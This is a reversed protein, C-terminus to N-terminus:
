NGIKLLGSIRHTRSLIRGPSARSENVGRKLPTNRRGLAASVTKLPKERRREGSSIMDSWWGRCSRRSAASATICAPFGNSVTERREPDASVGSFRPTLSLPTRSYIRHDCLRAQLEGCFCADSSERGAGGPHAGDDRCARSTAKRRLHGSIAVLFFCM